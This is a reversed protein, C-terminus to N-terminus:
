TNVQLAQLVIKLWQSSNEDLNTPYPAQELYTEIPVFHFKTPDCEECCVLEDFIPDRYFHNFNQLGLPHFALLGAELLNRKSSLYKKTEENHIGRIDVHHYFDDTRITRLRLMKNEFIQFLLFYFHNRSFLIFDLYFM